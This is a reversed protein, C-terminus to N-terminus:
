QDHVPRGVLASVPANDSGARGDHSRGCVSSSGWTRSTLRRARGAPITSTLGRECCPCHEVPVPQDLLVLKIGRDLWGMEATAWDVWKDPPADLLHYVREFVLRGDARVDAWQFALQGLAALGGDRLGHADRSGGAQAAGGGGRLGGVRGEQVRDHRSGSDLHNVAARPRHEEPRLNADHDRVCLVALNADVTNSSDGDIHHFNLGIDRAKCVCYASANKRLLLNRLKKPVPVRVM